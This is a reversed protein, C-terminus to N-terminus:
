RKLTKWYFKMQCSKCRTSKRGVRSPCDICVRPNLARERARLTNRGSFTPLQSNCNPCVLQLNEVRNDRRNGDIHDLILTLKAGRWFPPAGCLACEDKLIGEKILTRKLSPIRPTPSATMEQLTLVKRPPPPARELKKSPGFTKKLTRSVSENIESRKDRTSFSRACKLGCFRGSGYSGDQPVQCTECVM